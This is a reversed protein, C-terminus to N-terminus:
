RARGHPRLGARACRRHRLLPRQGLVREEAVAHLAFAVGTLGFYLGDHEWGEVAAAVTRAARVAAEAYRDDGFHHYAEILTLAVGATGNYLQPDDAADPWALGGDAPIATTLLWALAGDALEEADV